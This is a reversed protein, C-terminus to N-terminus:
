QAKVFSSLGVTIAAATVVTLATLAMLATAAYCLTLTLGAQIMRMAHMTTGGNGTMTCSPVNGRLPFTRWSRM